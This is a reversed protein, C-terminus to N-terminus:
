LPAINEHKHKLDKVKCLPYIIKSGKEPQKTVNLSNQLFYRKKKENEESQWTQLIDEDKKVGHYLVVNPTAQDKMFKDLAFGNFRPFIKLSLGQSVLDLGHKRFDQLIYDDTSQGYASFKDGKGQMGLAVRACQIFSFYPNLNEVTHNLRHFKDICKVAVRQNRHPWRKKTIEEMASVGKIGLVFWKMLVIHLLGNDSSYFYKKEPVYPQTDELSWLMIWERVAPKNKAGMHIHVEGNWSREYFSLDYELYEQPFKRTLSFTMTDADLLVFYDESAYKAMIHALYCHRRLFYSPIREQSCKEKELEYNSPILLHYGNANTWCRITELQLRYKRKFNDDAFVVFHMKHSKHRNLLKPENVSKTYFQFNKFKHIVNQPAKLVLPNNQNWVVLGFGVTLIFPTIM